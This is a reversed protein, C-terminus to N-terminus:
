RATSKIAVQTFFLYRNGVKLDSFLKGVNQSFAGTTMLTFTFFHPCVNRNIAMCQQPYVDNSTLPRYLNSRQGQRRM